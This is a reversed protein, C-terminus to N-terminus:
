APTGETDPAPAGKLLREQLAVFEPNAKESAPIGKLVEAARDREGVALLALAFLHQYHINLQDEVAMEHALSLSERARGAHIAAAVYKADLGRDSRSASRASQYAAAAEDYEGLKQCADGLEILPGLSTDGLARLHQIVTKAELWRRDQRYIEILREHAEKHENKHRICLQFHRTAAARDGVSFHIEAMQFHGDWDDPRVKLAREYLELAREHHKRYFM